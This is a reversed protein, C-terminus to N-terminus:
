SISIGLLVAKGLYIGAISPLGLKIESGYPEKKVSLEYYKFNGGATEKATGIITVTGQTHLSGAVSDIQAVATVQAIAPIASLIIAAAFVASLFFMGSKKM